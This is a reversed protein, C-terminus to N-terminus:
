SEQSPQKVLLVPCPALRAIREAVSGLLMRQFGRRGHSPVVILDVDQEKAMETVEIGADGITFVLQVKEPDVDGETLMERMRTESRKRQSEESYDPYLETPHVPYFNMMVHVVIVKGGDTVIDLARRVANVCRESYDFPVLVRSAQLGAM